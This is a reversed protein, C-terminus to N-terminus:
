GVRHSSSQEEKQLTNIIHNIKNLNSIMELGHTKKVELISKLDGLGSSVANNIIILEELEPHRKVRDRICM